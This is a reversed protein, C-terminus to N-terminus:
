RGGKRARPGALHDMRCAPDIPCLPRSTRRRSAAEAMQLMSRAHQLARQARRREGPLRFLGMGVVKFYTPEPM